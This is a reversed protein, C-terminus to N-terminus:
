SPPQETSQIQRQCSLVVLCSLVMRLLLFLFLVTVFGVLGIGALILNPANQIILSFLCPRGRRPYTVSLLSHVLFCARRRAKKKQERVIWFSQVLFLLKGPRFVSSWFFNVSHQMMIKLSGGLYVRLLLTPVLQEVWPTCILM